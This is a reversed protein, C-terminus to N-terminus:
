QRLLTPQTYPIIYLEIQM